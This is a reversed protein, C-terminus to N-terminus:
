ERYIQITGLDVFNKTEASQPAPEGLPLREGTFPNYMGTMLRYTGSALNVLSLQYADALVEDPLWTNTPAQGGLPLQDVQAVVQGAQDLLQVFVTYTQKMERRAQWYLTLTLMDNVSLAKTPRDIGLLTLHTPHGLNINLLQQPQPLTFDRSRLDLTLEPLQTQAIPKGTASLLILSIKGESGRLHPSTPVHYVMRRVQGAQWTELDGLTEGLSFDTEIKELAIAPDLSGDDNESSLRVRLTLDTTLPIEALWSLWLWLDQGPKLTKPRVYGVLRLPVEGESHNFPQLSIPLLPRELLFSLNQLPPVLSSTTVAIDPITTPVGLSQGSNAEYLILQLAYTKPPLDAPLWFGRQDILDQNLPWQSMTYGALLPPWDSQAFIDGRENLLRISLKYDGITPSELQWTLLLPLVDGASIAQNPLAVQVLRLGQGNANALLTNVPETRINVSSPPDIRLSSKKQFSLTYLSLRKRGLWTHWAPYAHKTLWTELTQDIDVGYPTYWLRTHKTALAAMLSQAEAASPVPTNFDTYVPLDGQYYYAFLMEGGDGTMVIADDPLAFAEITRIIGRWDPKAYAPNTYHQGLVWLSTAILGLLCLGALSKSMMSGLRRKFGSLNFKFLAILGLGIAIFYGVQVPILYRELYVPSRLQSFVWVALNPALTYSLLFSLLMFGRWDQWAERMTQMLGCLYLGVFGLVLWLGLSSPVFEGISYARAGRAYSELLGVLPLWHDNQWNNSGFRMWLILPFLSLGLTLGWSIYFRWHQRWTLLFFLGQIGIVILGHYHVLLTWTTGFVYLVWWSWSGRRWLNLFSWMSMVSAATLMSYNRADQAHWVQYPSLTMLLAVLFGLRSGGVTTGLRYSLPIALVSFWLSFFRLAYEGDGFLAVWYLTLLHYLPPVARITRLYDWLENPSLNAYFITWAEDIWYSQYDLRYARLGFALLTLAILIFRPRSLSALRWKFFVTTHPM